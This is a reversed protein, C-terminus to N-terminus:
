HRDDGGHRNRYANAHHKSEIGSPFGRPQVGDFGQPVLLDRPVDIRERQCVGLLLVNENGEALGAPHQAARFTGRDAQPHLTGRQM